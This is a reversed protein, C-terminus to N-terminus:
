LKFYLFYNEPFCRYLECTEMVMKCIKYYKCDKIVLKVM